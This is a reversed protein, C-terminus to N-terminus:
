ILVATLLLYLLRQPNSGPCCSNLHVALSAPSAIAFPLHM